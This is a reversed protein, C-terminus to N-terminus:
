RILDVDIQLKPTQSGSWNGIKKFIHREGPNDSRQFNVIDYSSSLPDGSKDFGVVGTKGRFRTQRLYLLTDEPTVTHTTDPCRGYPLLGFPEKCKFAADLAEAIAYVADTLYPVFPNHVEEFLKEGVKLSKCPESSLNKVSCGEMKWLEKWWPNSETATNSPSRSKLYNEFPIDVHRAPLIGLLGDMLHTYKELVEPGMTGIAESILWTRGLVKQRDVEKLFKIGAEYNSWLIVVQVKHARKLKTVISEIKNMYGTRTFYESFAICFTRRDYAVRELARIGYRGYSHDIAVAAIYTWNFYEIIEVMARAQQGDPSITRFFDDYFPSSLEESTAFPSVAPIQVVHLLSAVVVSSSSDETGIMASIPMSLNSFIQSTNNPETNKMSEYETKLENLRNNSVFDFASKMAFAPNDCYDHIDFGLTVNPLLHEDKNINEVAFTVAEVYGLGFGYLKKCSNTHLPLLIGITVNGPRFFHNIPASSLQSHVKDIFHYLAIVFIVKFIAAM